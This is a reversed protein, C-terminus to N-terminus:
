IPFSSTSSIVSQYWGQCTASLVGAFLVAARLSYPQQFFPRTNATELLRKEDKPFDKQGLAGHENWYVHAAWELKEKDVEINHRQAFTWAVSKAARSNPLQKFTPIQDLAKQNTMVPVQLPSQKLTTAEPSSCQCAGLVLPIMDDDDFGQHSPGTGADYSDFNDHPESQYAM